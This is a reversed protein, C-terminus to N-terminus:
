DTVAHLEFVFYRKLACVYMKLTSKTM